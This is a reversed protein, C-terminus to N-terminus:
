EENVRGCALAAVVRCTARSGGSRRGQMLQPAHRRCVGKAGQEESAAGGPGTQETDGGTRATKGAAEQVASGGGGWGLGMQRMILCHTKSWHHHYLPPPKYVHQSYITISYIPELSRPSSASCHSSCLSAGGSDGGTVRAAPQHHAREARGAPEGPEQGAGRPQGGDEEARRRQGQREGGPAGDARGQAALLIQLLLPLLLCRRPCCCRWLAPHSSAYSLAPPGVTHACSPMRRPLM